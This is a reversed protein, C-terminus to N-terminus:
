TPVTVDIPVVVPDKPQDFRATLRYRGPTVALRDSVWRGSGQRTLGFSRDVGDPGRLVGAVSPADAPTGETNLGTNLGLTFVTASASGTGSRRVQVEVSYGRATGTAAATRAAAPVRALTTGAARGPYQSPQATASMLAAAVVLGAALVLELRVASGLDGAAALRQTGAASRDALRPIFAVSNFSAILLVTVWLAVKATLETGWSTQGLDDLGSVQVLAAYGGTTLVAVMALLAVVSFGFSLTGAIEGVVGSDRGGLQRAVPLGALALALLGGIWLASALLHVGDMGIALWRDTKAAAAHSSLSFTLLGATGLGLAAALRLGPGARTPASDPAGAPGPAAVTRAAVLLVGGAAALLLIRAVLLGGTRTFLTILFSAPDVLIGGVSGGTSRAATDVLVMATGLVAVGAGVAALRPLRREILSEVLAATGAATRARLRRRMRRVVVTPFAVLGVMALAGGAALARGVAAWVSPGAGATAVPATLPTSERLVAFRFAGGVPHGDISLVNWTLTYTGAGLRSPLVVLVSQADAPDLEARTKLREGGPGTLGVGGPSVSVVEDFTLRARVPASSVVSVPSPTAQVLSAHAQAPVAGSLVGWGAVVVVVFWRGVMAGRRRGAM